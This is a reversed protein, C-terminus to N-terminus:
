GPYRRIIKKKERNFPFVNQFVCEESGDQKNNM